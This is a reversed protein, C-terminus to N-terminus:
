ANSLYTIRIGCLENTDYCPKHWYGIFGRMQVHQFKITSEYEFKTKIWQYM